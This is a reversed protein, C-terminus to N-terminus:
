GADLAVGAVPSSTGQRWFKAYRERSCGRGKLRPRARGLMRRDGKRLRLLTTRPASCRVCFIYQCHRPPRGYLWLVGWSGCGALSSAPLYIQAYDHCSVHLPAHLLDMAAAYCVEARLAALLAARPPARVHGAWEACSLLFAPFRSMIETYVKAMKHVPRGNGGEGKGGRRRCGRPRVPVRAAPRPAALEAIV